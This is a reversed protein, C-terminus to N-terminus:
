ERLLPAREAVRAIKRFENKINKYFFISSSCPNSGQTDHSVVTKLVTAKSWEAM